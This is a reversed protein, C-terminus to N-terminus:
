SKATSRNRRRRRSSADGLESDLERGAKEARATAPSPTPDAPAKALDANLADSFALWDSELVFRRGGVRISRLKTDRVGHLLWRWITSAHLHERRALQNITHRVSESLTATPTM